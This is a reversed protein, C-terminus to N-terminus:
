IQKVLVYNGIELALLCNFNFTFILAKIIVDYDSQM